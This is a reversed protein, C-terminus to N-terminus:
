MGFMNSLGGAQSFKAYWSLLVFQFLIAYVVFIARSGRRVMKEAKDKMYEVRKNNLEIKFALLKDSNDVGNLSQVALNCFNVVTVSTYKDRLKKIAIGDDGYIEINNRLDLVFNKIVETSDGRYATADLSILYDKLTPALRVKTGQLLRSYLILFLDPFDRELKADEDSIKSVAYLHFITPALVLTLFILNFPSGNLVLGIVLFFVGVIQLIKFLGSLETPTIPRGISKLVWRMRDLKYKYEKQKTEGIKSGINRDVWEYVRLIRMTRNRKIVRQKELRVDERAKKTGKSVGWMNNIKTIYLVFLILSAYLIFERFLM